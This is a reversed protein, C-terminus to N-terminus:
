NENRYYFLGTVWSFKEGQNSSLNFEQTWTKDNVRWAASFVDAPTSDYDKAEDSKEDRYMSYSTLNM